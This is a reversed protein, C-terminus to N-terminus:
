SMKKSQVTHMLNLSSPVSPKKSPFPSEVSEPLRMPSLCGLMLDGQESFKEVLAMVSASLNNKEEEKAGLAEM